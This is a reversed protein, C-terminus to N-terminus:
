KGGSRGQAVVYADKIFFMSPSQRGMVAMHKSVSEVMSESPKTYLKLLKSDPSWGGYIAIIYHPLGAAALMTAGGYRLSHSTVRKSFKLGMKRACAKVTMQMVTNLTEVRLPGYGPLHYLTDEEECGYEDRTDIIWDELITVACTDPFGWQRNHRTRRGFGSQDAKAFTIDIVASYSQGRNMHKHKIPHGRQDFFIIHRRRLPPAAAKGDTMIHESKRLLFNIGVVECVFVRKILVRVDKGQKDFIGSEKMVGKSAVALDLGFPLKMREAAPNKANYGRQFGALVLKVERGKIADRFAFRCGSREQDFRGAVGPLYVGSISVPNMKRIGCCLVTYATIKDEIEEM